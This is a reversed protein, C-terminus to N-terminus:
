ASRKKRCAAKTKVDPVAPIYRVYLKRKGTSDERIEWSKLKMGKMASNHNKADM